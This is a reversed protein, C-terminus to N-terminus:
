LELFYFCYLELLLFFFLLFFSSSPLLFLPFPLLLFVGGLGAIHARKIGLTYVNKLLLDFRRHMYEEAVFSYVTRIGSITENAVNNAKGYAKQTRKVSSEFLKTEMLGIGILLPSTALMVLTMKWGSVFALVVGGVVQAV